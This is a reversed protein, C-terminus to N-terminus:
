KYIKTIGKKKFFFSICIYVVEKELLIYRNSINKFFLILPLIDKRMM